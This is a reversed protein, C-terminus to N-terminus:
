AIGPVEAPSSAAKLKSKIFHEGAKYSSRVFPGAAVYAFGMELGKKKLTEFRDPHVYEKVEAYFGNTAPQLYQGIAVFDVGAARLDALSSLVEDETEGLGLMIASKTRIGTGISKVSKLVSISRDYTARRDRVSGSLRRVTEINHGIVDPGADTILKLLRNDGSFDPILVEVSTSPAQRRIERVCEAFHSAGQDPLDDRCVSTIVVYDLEWEKIIQGLRSPEMKDVSIGNASKSVACFRCGRTCTDGLVMFTATGSGWCETINPCHAEVCVTHLGLESIRGKVRNYKDTSVPKIGLWEPKAMDDDKVGRM